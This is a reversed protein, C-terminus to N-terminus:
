RVEAGPHKRQRRSTPRCYTCRSKTHFLSSWQPLRQYCQQQDVNRAARGCAAKEIRKM